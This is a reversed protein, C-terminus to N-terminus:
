IEIVPARCHRASRASAPMILGFIPFIIMTVLNTNQSQIPTNSRPPSEGVGGGRRTHTSADGEANMKPARVILFTARTSMSKSIPHKNIHLRRLYDRCLRPCGWSVISRDTCLAMDSWSLWVGCLGRRFSVGCISNSIGIGPLKQYFAWRKSQAKDNEPNPHGLIPLRITIFSPRRNHLRCASAQAVWVWGM